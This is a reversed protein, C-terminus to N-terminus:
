EDHLGAIKLAQNLGMGAQTLSHTARSLTALDTSKLEAIDFKVEHGFVFKLQHTLISLMPAITSALFLRWSDRISSESASSFLGRPVGCASFISDELNRRLEVSPPKPDAGLRALKWDQGPSGQQGWSSRQTQVLATRGDLNRLSNRLEQVDHSGPPNPQPLLNGVASRMEKTLHSETGSLLEVTKAARALPGVGRWPAVPDLSYRVHIVSTPDVFDYTHLKDPRSVTVQYYQIGGYNRLEYGTVLDYGWANPGPTVLWLSEGRLCLARGIEGLMEPGINFDPIIRAGSFGRAWYGVASEIAAQAFSALVNDGTSASAARNIYAELVAETYSRSEPSLWDALRDRWTKIM